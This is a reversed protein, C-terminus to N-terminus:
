GCQGGRGLTEWSASGTGNEGGRTCEMMVGGLLHGLVEEQGRSFDQRVEEQRWRLETSGSEGRGGSAPGHM